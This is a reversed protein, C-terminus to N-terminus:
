HPTLLNYLKEIILDLELLKKYINVNFKKKNNIKPVALIYWNMKVEM